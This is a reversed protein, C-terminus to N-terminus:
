SQKNKHIYKLKEAAAAAKKNLNMRFKIAAARGREYAVLMVGAIVLPCFYYIVRYAILAGMIDTVIHNGPLMYLFLGEFVGLGGPVQSYVGLVQAILFIGIYIKFDVDIFSILAFYLVLAAFVTDAIGISTQALAMKWSPTVFEVDSNVKLPKKYYASAWFYIVLAVVSVAAVIETTLKSGPNNVFLSNPVLAYGIIILALCGMLYTMGSFTVMKVIDSAQFRWRTYLRYRIAGGSVIAHGANNSVSFGIFGAMLWKWWVLKKGIYTLALYDYGALVVYGIICCIASLMINSTPISTFAEWIDIMKYQGLQKYIMYVAVAFFFLGSWSVLKKLTRKTKFTM